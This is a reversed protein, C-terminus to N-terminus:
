DDTTCVPFNAAGDRTQDDGIAINADTVVHGRTDTVRFTFPGVGLGEAPVFYNYDVRPIAKFTGGADKVEVKAIPYRHNRIQIPTYFKNDGAKFHYGVPGEVPCATVHWSIDVRGASLPAIKKFATESLDLDGASCGPCKDVVKVIVSGQPGTVDLCAGCMAATNWDEDNLAAVLFDSSPEFSCTGTGDADYYTAEGASPAPVAPCSDDMMADPDHATSGDPTTDSADDTVAGDDDGGCAAVSLACVVVGVGVVSLVSRM